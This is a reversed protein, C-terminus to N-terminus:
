FLFRWNLAYYHCVTWLNNRSWNGCKCLVGLVFSAVALHTCDGARGMFNKVVRKEFSALLHVFRTGFMLHLALLSGFFGLLVFVDFSLGPLSCGEQERHQRKRHRLGPSTCTRRSLHTAQQPRHLHPEDERESPYLWVLELLGHGSGGNKSRERIM